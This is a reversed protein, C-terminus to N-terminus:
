ASFQRFAIELCTGPRTMLRETGDGLQRSRASGGRPSLSAFKNQM